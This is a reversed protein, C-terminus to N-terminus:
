QHKEGGVVVHGVALGSGVAVEDAAVGVGDASGFEEGECDAAADGVGESEVGLGM